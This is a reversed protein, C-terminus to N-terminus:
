PDILPAAFKSPLEIIEHMEPEEMRGDLLAPPLM